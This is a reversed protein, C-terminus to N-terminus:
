SGKTLRDIQRKAEARGAQAEKYLRQQERVDVNDRSLNESDIRKQQLAQTIQGETADIERQKVQINGAQHLVASGSPTARRLADQETELVLKQKELSKIKAETHKLRPASGKIRM